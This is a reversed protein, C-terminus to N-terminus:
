HIQQGTALKLVWKPMSQVSNKIWFSFKWFLLKKLWQGKYWYHGSWSRFNQPPYKENLSLWGLYSVRIGWNAQSHPNVWIVTPRQQPVRLRCWTDALAAHQMAHRFPLGAVTQTWSAVSDQMTVKHLGTLKPKTPNLLPKSANTGNQLILSSIAIRETSSCSLSHRVNPCARTDM